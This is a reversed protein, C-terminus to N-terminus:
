QEQKTVFRVQLQAEATELAMAIFNFLCEIASFYIIVNPFNHSFLANLVHLGLISMSLKTMFHCILLDALM